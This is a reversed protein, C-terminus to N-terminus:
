LMEIAPGSEPATGQREGIIALVGAAIMAVLPAIITLSVVAWLIIPLIELVEAAHPDRARMIVRSDVTVAPRNALISPPVSSCIGTGVCAPKVSPTHVLEM